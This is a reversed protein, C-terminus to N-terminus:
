DAERDKGFLQAVGASLREVVSDAPREPDALENEGLVSEDEAVEERTFPRLSRGEGRLAEVAGVLSGGAAELAADFAAPAAHLHECLLDRRVGRVVERLAAEREPHRAADLAADCETDYGMSRNNLNSSGVRLLRDDMALVKAHVYIAEGEATVPYYAAFRGHRDAAWLLRLLKTRAGDMAKRRLWGETDQPAVLVVEPGDPERLREALAEALARSGLYQNEIYLTRRVNRIIELYLAEIERVERREEMEPLTRAIGIEVAEADPALDEPWIAAGGPPPELREDTAALWRDRALDGLARAAPGSVAAAVDHWAMYPRGSPKVRRPDDDEHGRTDWRDATMDIGGCFAMADDIVAIKSHHAAGIPHASDLRFTLREHTMWNTVMVPTMGRGLAQVAGVDWELIRIELESRTEVLWSVFEGLTNPGDMTPGDPELKIRTDFEWGILLVSRRARLMAAKAVRFYDAADVIIRFRDAREVRWCTRGPVLLEPEAM